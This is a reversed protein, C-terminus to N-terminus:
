AAVPDAAPEAPEGPRRPTATFDALTFRKMLRRFTATSGPWITTNRGSRPDVYWNMCGGSTWVTGKLRQQVHENYADQVEPRVDLAALGREDM